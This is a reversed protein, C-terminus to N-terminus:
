KNHIPKVLTAVQVGFFLAIKDLRKAGPWRKGAEILVVYPQSCGISAALQVQTIGRRERLRRVNAAFAQQVAMVPLTDAPGTPHLTM